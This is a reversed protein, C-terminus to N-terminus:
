VVSERDTQVSGHHQDVVVAASDEPEKGDSVFRVNVVVAQEVGRVAQVEPVCCGQCAVVEVTGGRTDGEILDRREGDHAPGQVHHVEEEVRRGVHRGGEGRGGSRALGVGTGRM